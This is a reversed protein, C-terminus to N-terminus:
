EQTGECTVVERDGTVKDVEVVCEWDVPPVEAEVSQVWWGLGFSGVSVVILATWWWAREREQVRLALSAERWIDGEDEETLAGDEYLAMIQQYFESEPVKADHHEQEWERYRGLWRSAVSM